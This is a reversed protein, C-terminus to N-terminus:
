VVDIDEALERTSLGDGVKPDLLLVGLTGDDEGRGHRGLDDVLADM